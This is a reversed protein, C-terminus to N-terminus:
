FSLTLGGGGMGREWLWRSGREAGGLGWEGGIVWGGGEWVGLGGRGFEWGGAGGAGWELGGV